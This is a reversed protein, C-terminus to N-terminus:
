IRKIIINIDDISEVDHCHKKKFDNLLTRVSKREAIRQKSLFMLKHSVKKAKAFKPHQDLIDTIRRNQITKNDVKNIYINKTGIRKVIFQNIINDPLENTYSYEKGELTETTLNIVERTLAAKSNNNLTKNYSDNIQSCYYSVDFDNPVSRDRDLKLCSPNINFAKSLKPINCVFLNGSYINGKPKDVISGYSSKHIINDETIINNIFDEYIDRPCDLITIFEHLQNYGGNYDIRLTEGVLDDYSWKPLIALDNTMIQFSLQERLFILFAVKLGEGHHGIAESNDGKDTNGIRLFELKNPVYDNSIRIQVIEGNDESYVNIKYGGYDIYNQFVERLAETLTWNPLYDRGFGYEIKGNM